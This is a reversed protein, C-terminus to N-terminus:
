ANPQTHTPPPGCGSKAGGNYRGDAFLLGRVSAHSWLVRWSWVALVCVRLLPRNGTKPAEHWRCAGGHVIPVLLFRKLDAFCTQCRLCAQAYCRQSKSRKSLYIKSGGGMKKYILKTFCFQVEKTLFQKKEPPLVGWPAEVPFLAFGTTM